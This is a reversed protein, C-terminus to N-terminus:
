RSSHWRVYRDVSPRAHRGTRLRHQRPSGTRRPSTPPWCISDAYLELGATGVIHEGERAVLRTPLHEFVFDASWVDNSEPATGAASSRGAAGEQPAPAQGAAAGEAYLRDVRKHNVVRGEPRLELYIMGAGYRRHDHALAVIRHYFPGFVVSQTFQRAQEM